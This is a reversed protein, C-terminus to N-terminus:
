PSVAEVALLVGGPDYGHDHFATGRYVVVLDPAYLRRLGVNPLIYVDEPATASLARDAARVEWSHDENPPPVVLIVGDHLERRLGDEPEYSLEAAIHLSTASLPAGM